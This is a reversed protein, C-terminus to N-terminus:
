IWVLLGHEFMQYGPSLCGSSIFCSGRIIECRWATALENCQTQILWNAAVADAQFLEQAKSNLSSTKLIVEAHHPSAWATGMDDPLTRIYSYWFSSGGKRRELALFLAFLMEQPDLAQTLIGVFHESVHEIGLSEEDGCAIDGQLNPVSEILTHWTVGPLVSISLALSAYTLLWVIFREIVSGSGWFGCLVALM